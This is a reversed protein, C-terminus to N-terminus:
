GGYPVFASHIGYRCGAKGMQDTGTDEILSSDPRSQIQRRDLLRSSSASWDQLQARPSGATVLICNDTVLIEEAGETGPLVAKIRGSAADIVSVPADLGLTVFVEDDVAVLRRGLEAPGSRFNRLNPTWDNIPVEWLTIGNLADRAVLVWEPPLYPTVLTAKDIITFLRGQASVMASFTAQTNHHRVHDPAGIWQVRQPPGVLTDQAVANNGADYLMHNWESMEEPWPKTIETGDAQIIVGNPALIRSLEKQSILGNEILFVTNIMNEAYPTHPGKFDMVTFRGDPENLVSQRVSVEAHNDERQLLIQTLGDKRKSLESVLAADPMGIVVTLGPRQIQAPTGASVTAALVLHCAAVMTISKINMMKFRKLSHDQKTVHM